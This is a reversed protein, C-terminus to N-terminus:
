YGCRVCKRPLLSYILIIVSLSYGYSIGQSDLAVSHPFNVKASSAAGDDGSYGESGTGAFTSIIGTSFTVKRIRHNGIDAVYLNGILLLQLYHDTIFTSMLVQHM